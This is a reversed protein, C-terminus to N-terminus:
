SDTTILEFGQWAVEDVKEVGAVRGLVESSAVGVTPAGAGAGGGADGAEWVFTSVRWTNLIPVTYPSPSFKPSERGGVAQDLAQTMLMHGPPVPPNLVPVSASFFVDSLLGIFPPMFVFLQHQYYGTESMWPSTAVECTPHEKFFLPRTSNTDTMADVMLKSRKVDLDRCSTELFRFAAPAMLMFGMIQPEESSYLIDTVPRFEVQVINVASAYPSSYSWQSLQMAHVIPYPELDHSRALAYGSAGDLIELTLLDRRAAAIDAPPVGGHLVGLPLMYQRAPPMLMTMLQFTIRPGTVGRWNKVVQDMSQGDGASVSASADLECTAFRVVRLASDEPREEFEQYEDEVDGWYDAPRAFYSLPENWAQRRFIAAQQECAMFEINHGADPNLARTSVRLLLGPPYTRRGISFILQLISPHGYYPASPLMWVPTLDRVELRMLESNSSQSGQSDQIGRRSEFSTEVTAVFIRRVGRMATVVWRDYQSLM